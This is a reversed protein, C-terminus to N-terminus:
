NGFPDRGLMAWRILHKIDSEATRGLDRYLGCEKALALFESEVVDVAGLDSAAHAGAWITRLRESIPLSPDMEARVLNVAQSLLDEPPMPMM